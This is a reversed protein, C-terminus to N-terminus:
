THTTMLRERTRPMMVLCQKQQLSQVLVSRSAGTRSDLLLLPGACPGESHILALLQSSGEGKLQKWGRPVICSLAFPEESSHTPAVGRIDEETIAVCHNPGPRSGQTTLCHGTSERPNIMVAKDANLRCGLAVPSDSRNTGGLSSKTHRAAVQSSLSEGKDGLFESESNELNSGEICSLYFVCELTNLSSTICNTAEQGLGSAQSREEELSHQQNIYLFLQM